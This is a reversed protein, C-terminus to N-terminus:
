RGRVEGSSPGEDGGLRDAPRATLWEQMEFEPKNSQRRSLVQERVPAPAPGPSLLTCAGSPPRDECLFLCQSARPSHDCHLASYVQLRIPTRLAPQMPESPCSHPAPLQGPLSLRETRRSSGSSPPPPLLQSHFSTRENPIM